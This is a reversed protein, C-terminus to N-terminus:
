KDPSKKAYLFMKLGTHSEKCHNENCRRAVHVLDTQLLGLLDLHLNM